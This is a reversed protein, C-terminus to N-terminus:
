GAKPDEVNPDFAGANPELVGANPEVDNPAEEVGDKPVVGVGAKPAVELEIKPLLLVVLANPCDVEAKPLLEVGANPLM